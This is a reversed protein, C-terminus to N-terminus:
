VAINGYDDPLREPNLVNIIKEKIEDDNLTYPLRLLTLNHEKCYNNKIKDRLKTEEFAERGGFWDIPEYHQKGDYEILIISDDDHVAFDFRLKSKYVCDDFSYQKDYSVGLTKLFLEIITEGYSMISCGCSIRNNYNVAAPLAEFEKGCSPCKCIWLWQGAKNMRSQRIFLVGANNTYGAWDKENAKSTREKQLCGCSQTHGISLDAGAVIVENGCDCICKCKTPRTDWMMEIVTLRNFKKGTLDKRNKM